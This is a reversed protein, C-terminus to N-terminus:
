TVAEHELRFSGNEVVIGNADTGTFRGDFQADGGVTLELTGLPYLEAETSGTVHIVSPLGLQLQFIGTEIEAPLYVLFAEGQDNSAEICHVGERVFYHVGTAVHFAQRGGATILDASFHGSRNSSM